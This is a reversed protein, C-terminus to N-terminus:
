EGGLKDFFAKDALEGTPKGQKMFQDGIARLKDVLPLEQRLHFIESEVAIRIADTMSIKKMEALKRVATETRSDKISLAM